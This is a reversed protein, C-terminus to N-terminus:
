FLEFDSSLLFCYFGMSPDFSFGVVGFFVSFELALSDVSSLSFPDLPFDESSLDEELDVEATLFDGPFAGSVGVLFLDGLTLPDAAPVLVGVFDAVV